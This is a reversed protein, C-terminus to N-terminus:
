ESARHPLASAPCGAYSSSTLDIDNIDQPCYMYTTIAEKQVPKYAGAESAIPIYSRWQWVNRFAVGWPGLYGYPPQRSVLIELHAQHGSKALLVAVASRM